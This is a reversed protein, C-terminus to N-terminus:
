LGQWPKVNIWLRLGVREIVDHRVGYATMGGSASLHDEWGM